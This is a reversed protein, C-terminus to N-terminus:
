LDGGARRHDQIGLPLPIAQLDIRSQASNEYRGVAAAFDRESCRAQRQLEQRLSRAHRSILSREHADAPMIAGDRGIPGTCVQRDYTECRISYERALDALDLVLPCSLVAEALADLSGDNVIDADAQIEHHFQESEHAATDDNLQTADRRHVRIVRGGHERVMTLENAFRLDTIALKTFGLGTQRGIWLAVVKLFYYPDSERRWTAWAQMAWRPSRPEQLRGHVSGCWALFEPDSCMGPAMALIPWEKTQHHTLMREDVQWAAAVEKRLADAFAITRYGLQQQLVQACADKGVGPRGTLAILRDPPNRLGSVHGLYESSM